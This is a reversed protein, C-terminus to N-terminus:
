MGLFIECFERVVGEGGRRKLVYDVKELVRPHADSPAVSYGCVEMAALDNIDNGLFVVKQLDITRSHCWDILTERKHSLGHMYEIRLKEARRAVVNNAETSLILLPVKERLYDVALGDSRNCIVSEVGHEDVLVRNDTFVGDFDFVMLEPHFSLQNKEPQEIM